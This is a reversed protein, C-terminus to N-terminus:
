CDDFRNLKIFEEYSISSLMMNMGKLTGFAAKM